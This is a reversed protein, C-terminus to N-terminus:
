SGARLEELTELMEEVRPFKVRPRGLEEGQAVEVEDLRKWDDYSVVTVGRDALIRDVAAPDRDGDGQDELGPVDEVMKEVTERADLKNTGILGTPGRKVWGVVYERSVEEPRDPHLIRGELNPVIARREDYPLDLLRESRYGIARVVMTVPLLETRGTGRARLREPTPELVNHEVRVGTVEGEEGVIEVPSVLFRFRIKRKEPEDSAESLERFIELNKRASRDDELAAESAPDLELDGPDVVVQAGPIETLEKLEAPSCKAQVPGRRALVDIERVRSREMEELAADSIDTKALEEVPKALMRSVDMAVNGIGVVAVREHHLPYHADALDPHSNYWAVFETSSISGELDEGPIGLSRDSQAGVAYVIQHYHRKLEERSLDTGVEVNGLFRVREDTIAKDFVRSVLKIKQHDPAVGYRVLGYPAPLRDFVDVSVELDEDDLLAAVAYMGSPGSGVVAVRLPHESTGIRTM